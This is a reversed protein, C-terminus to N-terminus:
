KKSKIEEALTQFQKASSILGVTSPDSFVFKEVLGQHCWAM